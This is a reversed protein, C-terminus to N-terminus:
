ATSLCLMRGYLRVGYGTESSINGSYNYGNITCNKIGYAYPCGLNTDAVQLQQLDEFNDTEYINGTFNPLTEIISIQIGFGSLIVNSKAKIGTSIKVVGKFYVIGIGLLSALDIAEQVTYSEDSGDNKLIVHISTKDQLEEIDTAAAVFNDRISKITPYRNTPNNINIRSVM